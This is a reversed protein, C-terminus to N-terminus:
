DFYSVSGYNGRMEGNKGQNVAAYRTFRKWRLESKKRSVVCCVIIIVVVIAVVPLSISLSLILPLKSSRRHNISIVIPSQNTSLGGDCSVYLSLSSPLQPTPRSFRNSLRTSSSPHTPSSSPSSIPSHHHSNSSNTKSPTKEILASLNLPSSSLSLVPSLSLTLATEIFVGSAETDKFVRLVPAYPHFETSVFNLPPLIPWSHSDMETVNCTISTIEPLSCTFLSTSVSHSYCSTDCLLNPFVAAQPNPQSIPSFSISSSPSSPTDPSDNFLNNKTMMLVGNQCNGELRFLQDDLLFDNSSFRSSSVLLSGGGSVVLTGNSCNTLICNDMKVFCDETSFSAFNPTVATKGFVAISSGCPQYRWKSDVLSHPNSIKKMQCTDMNFTCSVFSIPNTRLHSTMHNSSRHSTAEPITENSQIFVSGGAGMAKNKNFKCGTTVFDFTSARDSTVVALGGGNQASNGEFTVDTMTISSYYTNTVREAPILALGGGIFNAFCDIFFTNHSIIFSLQAETLSAMIGGGNELSQCRVFRCQRVLLQHAIDTKAPEYCLGGGNLAHLDSFEVNFLSVSNVSKLSLGAGNLSSMFYKFSSIITGESPSAIASITVSKAGVISVLSSNQPTPAPGDRYGEFSCGALEVIIDKTESESTVTLCSGQKGKCQNFKCQKLRLAFNSWIAGGAEESSCSSFVCNTLVPVQLANHSSSSPNSRTADIRLAGGKSEGGCNEFTSDSITVFTCTSDIVLVSAQDTATINSFFTNKIQIDSARDLRLSLSPTTTPVGFSDPNYNLFCTPIVDMNPNTPSSAIGSELMLIWINSCCVLESCSVLPFSQHKNSGKRSALESLFREEEPDGVIVAASFVSAAISVSLSIPSTTGVYLCMGAKSATCHSITVSDMQLDRECFIGGGIQTTSCEAIRVTHLILTDGKDNPQPQRLNLSALQSLFEPSHSTTERTMITRHDISVLAGGGDSGDCNKFSSRSVLASTVNESFFVGGGFLDSRLTSFFCYQIMVEYCFGFHLATGNRWAAANSFSSNTITKDEAEHRTISVLATKDFCAQSCSLTNTLGACDFSVGNMQVKVGEQTDGGSEGIIFVSGGQEVAQCDRFTVLTFTLSREAHVAGGTMTSSCKEFLCSTLLCQVTPPDSVPDTNTSPSPREVPVTVQPVPVTVKPVFISGGEKTSEGHKFCCNSLSVSICSEDLHLHSGREAAFGDMTTSRIDITPINSFEFAGIKATSSPVVSSVLSTHDTTATLTVKLLSHLSFLYPVSPTEFSYKFTDSLTFSSNDMFLQSEPEVVTQGPEPQSEHKVSTQALEPQSQSETLTGDMWVCLGSSASCDTVSTNYITIVANSHIFGGKGNATSSTIASDIFNISPLSGDKPHFCSLFGGNKASKSSTVICNSFITTGCNTGLFISGGDEDSECKEFATFKLKITPTDTISLASGSTTSHLLMFWCKKSEDGLINFEEVKRAVIASGTPVTPDQQSITITNLSMNIPQQSEDIGDILIFSAEPAVCDQITLGTFSSSTYTLIAGARTKASVSAFSTHEIIVRFKTDSSFPSKSAPTVPQPAFLFGGAEIRATCNKVRCFSIQISGVNEDASVCTGRNGELSDFTTGALTVSSCNSLCIGATDTNSIHKQIFADQEGDTEFTFVNLNNAHILCFPSLTESGSITSGRIIASGYSEGASSSFFLLAPSLQNTSSHSSDTCIDCASVTCSFLKIERSSRLVIGLGTGKCKSITVGTLVVCREINDDDNRTSEKGKKGEVVLVSAGSKAECEKFQAAEINVNECNPDIWIVAEGETSIGSVAFGSMSVSTVSEILMAAGDSVSNSLSFTTKTGATTPLIVFSDLSTVHVLPTIPDPNPQDSSSSVIESSPISGYFSCGRISVSLTDSNSNTHAGGSSKGAFVSSGYLASCGKMVVDELVITSDVSFVSGGNLVALCSTFVSSQVSLYSSSVSIAGGSDLLNSCGSFTIFSLCGFTINSLRVPSHQYQLNEFSINTISLDTVHNILLPPLKATPSQPNTSTITLSDYQEFKIMNTNEDAYFHCDTLNASSSGKSETLRAKLSIVSTPVTTPNITGHQTSSVATEEGFISTRLSLSAIGALAWGSTEAKSNKFISSSISLIPINEQETAVSMYICGGSSQSECARFRSDTITLNKCLGSSFVAGGFLASKLSDFHVNKLTTTATNFLCLACGNSASSHSSFSSYIIEEDTTDCHGHISPSQAESITLKTVSTLHVLSPLNIIEDGTENSFIGTFKSGIISFNICTDCKICSALSVANHQTMHPRSSTSDVLSLESTSIRFTSLQQMDFLPRIDLASTIASSAVIDSFEVNQVNAIQIFIRPLEEVTLRKITASDDLKLISPLGTISLSTKFAYISPQLEVSTSSEKYTIIVEPGPSTLAYALTQCPSEVLTFCDEQDKGETSISISIPDAYCFTSLFLFLLQISGM